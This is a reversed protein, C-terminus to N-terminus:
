SAIKFRIRFITGEKSSNVEISAGHRKAIRYCVALGLGKGMEKTTLFPTGLRELVEPEIGKGQDKIELIISGEECRTSITLIGNRNMAQYSNRSMKLILHRIEKMNLFLDPIQHLDTLFVKEEERAITQILPSISEIIENLNWLEKPHEVGKSVALFISITLNLDDLEEIMMQLYDQNQALSPKQMFMQLFGRVTTMPNRIEHSIIEAVERSRILNEFLDIEDRLIKLREDESKPACVKNKM